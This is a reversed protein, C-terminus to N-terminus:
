GAPTKPNQPRLHAPTAYKQAEIALKFAEIQAQISGRKALEQGRRSQTEPKAKSPRSKRYASAKSEGLAIQRAFERDKPSLAKSGAGAAGLLVVDLPVAELGEAIQKRTLRKVMQVGTYISFVGGSYLAARMSQLGLGELRGCGAM